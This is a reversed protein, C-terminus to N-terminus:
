ANRVAPQELRRAGRQTLHRTRRQACSENERQEGAARRHSERNTSRSQEARGSKRFYERAEGAIESEREGHEGRALRRERAHAAARTLMKSAIATPSGERQKAPAHHFPEESARIARGLARQNRVVVRQYGRRLLITTAREVRVGAIELRGARKGPSVDDGELLRAGLEHHRVRRSTARQELFEPM